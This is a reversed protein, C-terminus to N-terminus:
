AKGLNLYLLLGVILIVAGWGLWEIYQRIRPEMQPGLWRVLAAILFFQSARGIISAIVFPIFPMSLSGATITFVKYPVPSFGAMLVVWVGYESFWERANQIQAAYHSFWPEVLEYLGLGIFYGLIGGLVSFLTTLAALRWAQAPKALAMPLLMVATPIPFFSSEAFSIGALYRPAHPHRSWAMVRDYLGGFLNM